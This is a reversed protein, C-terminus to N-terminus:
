RFWVLVLSIIFLLVWFWPKWAFIKSGDLPPIPFLNFFALIANVSGILNPIWHPISLFVIAFFLNVAPGALSILGMEKQTLRAEKFAWRGFKYPFIMVAGPAIIVFKVGVMTMLLAFLLSLLLGQFWMKYFATCGFKIAVFKHALEHFAFAMIVVLILVPFLRWGLLFSFILSIVFISIILDKIEEKSFLKLLKM